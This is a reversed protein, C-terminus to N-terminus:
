VNANEFGRGWGENDGIWLGRKRAVSSVNSSQSVEDEEPKKVSREHVDESEDEDNEWQRKKGICCLFSLM